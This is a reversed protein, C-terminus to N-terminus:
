YRLMFGDEIKFRDVLGMTDDWVGIVHLGLAKEFEGLWGRM